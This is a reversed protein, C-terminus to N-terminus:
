AASPPAAWSRLLLENMGLSESAKLYPRAGFSRRLLEWTLMPQENHVEVPEDKRWGRASLQRFLGTKRAPDILGLEAGRMIIAQMSVGWRAKLRALDSLTVGGGIAEEMRSAPLLFAGAFRHAELEAGDVDEFNRHLIFHGLEHAVTFRERDGSGPFVAIIGYDIPSPWCSVGFHGLQEPDTAGGMRIVAIGHSELTRTLHGIPRDVDLGLARRAAGAVAELDFDENTPRSPLSPKPYQADRMLSSWVRWAERALEEVRRTETIRSSALKRFRMTGDPINQTQIDFFSQPMGVARGVAQVTDDTAIRLGSEVQSVLAQSLGAVTALEKQTLGAILRASRVREGRNSTKM